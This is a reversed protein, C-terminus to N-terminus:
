GEQQKIHQKKEPRSHDQLVPEESQGKVLGKRDKFITIVNERLSRKTLLFAELEAKQQLNHIMGM